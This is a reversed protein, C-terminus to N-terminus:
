DPLGPAVASFASAAAATSGYGVEVADGERPRAPPMTKLLEETLYETEIWRLVLELVSKLDKLDKDQWNRQYHNDDSGLWVARQAVDRVNNDTVYTAICEVLPANEIAAREEPRRSVLYDKILFELAKRYGVASIQKLGLAEAKLCEAYIGSYNESIRVVFQPLSPLVPESPRCTLFVYINARKEYYGLFYERCSESPCAFVITLSGAYVRGGPGGTMLNPTIRTQCIPCIDPRRDITVQGLGALNLVSPM